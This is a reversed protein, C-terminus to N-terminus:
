VTMDDIGDKTFGLLKIEDSLIKERKRIKDGKENLEVELSNKVAELFDASTIVLQEIRKWMM